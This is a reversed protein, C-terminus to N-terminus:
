REARRELQDRGAFFRNEVLPRGALAQYFVFGFAALYVAAFLITPIEPRVTTVRKALGVFLDFSLYHISGAPAAYRNTLFRMVDALSGFGGEAEGFFAVVLALYAVSLLLPVAWQVIRQTWIWRPAAALWIWSLLATTNVISFVIEANM